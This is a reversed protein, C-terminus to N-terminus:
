GSIKDQFMEKHEEDSLGKTSFTKKVSARAGRSTGLQAARDKTEKDRKAKWTTFLDDNVAELLPKNQLTAVKQAYEVEEVSHGKAILIAEERSLAPKAADATPQAPTVPAATAAPKGKNKERQLRAWLKENRDALAAIRADKQEPTENAPPAPPVEPELEDDEEDDIPPVVPDVPAPEIPDVPPVNPDTM